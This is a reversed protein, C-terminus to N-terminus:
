QSYMGDSGCEYVTSYGIFASQSTAVSCSMETVTGTEDMVFGKTGYGITLRYGAGLGMPMYQGFARDNSVLPCYAANTFTGPTCPTTMKSGYYASVTPYRGNDIQYALLKTRSNRLDSRISAEIARDQIGNFAVVTISALIAIVVIVILLEVITFGPLRNKNAWLDMATLYLM